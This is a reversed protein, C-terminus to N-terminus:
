QSEEQMYSAYTSWNTASKYAELISHDESYPVYIICNDTIEYFANTGLTPPTTSEFHYSAINYCSQFANSAINTVSSPITLSTLAYCSIFVGMEISTIGAPVVISEMIRCDRFAYGDISTLSDPITAHSLNYCQYFMSSGISNLSNPLSACSLKYCRAMMYSGISRIGNPIVLYPLNYCDSFLDSQISAIHPLIVAKLNDCSAMAYEKFQTVSSDCFLARIAHHYVRNSANSGSAHRLLACHQNTSGSGHLGMTGTCTLKIDYNGPAAYEHRPTWKVINVSTGTLTDHATGDGWDVDVTGNPCCGLIPSTRGEELHILVHTKGDTLTYMQGVELQGYKAVYARADEFSWNWGQSTLPIEDGSHDPNDPMATLAAFEAPPYPYVVTGDYDRFNVEKAPVSGGGGGTSIAEVADVFGDPFALPASTGGKARIADAVSMLQTDRAVYNAM